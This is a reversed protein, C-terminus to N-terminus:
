FLFEEFIYEESAIKNTFQLNIYSFMMSSWSSQVSLRSIQTWTGAKLLDSVLHASTFAKLKLKRM